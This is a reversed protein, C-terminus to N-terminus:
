RQFPGGSPGLERWPVSDNHKNSAVWNQCELGRDDLEKAPFSIEPPSSPSGKARKTEKDLIGQLIQVGLDAKGRLELVQAWIVQPRQQLSPTKIGSPRPTMM